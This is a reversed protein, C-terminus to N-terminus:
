CTLFYCTLVGQLTGFIIMVSIIRIFDFKTPWEFDLSQRGKSRGINYHIMNETFNIVTYVMFSVIFLKGLRLSRLHQFLHFM